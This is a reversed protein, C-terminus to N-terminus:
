KESQQESACQMKQQTTLNSEVDMLDMCRTHLADTEGPLSSGFMYNIEFHELVFNTDSKIVSRAVQFILDRLEYVGAQKSPTHDRPSLEGREMM